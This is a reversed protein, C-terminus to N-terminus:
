AKYEARVCRFIREQFEYVIKVVIRRQMPNQYLGEAEACERALKSVTEGELSTSPNWGILTPFSQQAIVITKHGTSRAANQSILLYLISVRPSM